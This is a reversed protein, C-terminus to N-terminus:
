YVTPDSKWVKMEWALVGECKRVYEASSTRCLVHEGCGGQMVATMSMLQRSPRSSSVECDVLDDSVMECVMRRGEGKTSSREGDIM